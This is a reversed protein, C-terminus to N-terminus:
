TIESINRYFTKIDDSFVYGKCCYILIVQKNINCSDIAKTETINVIDLVEVLITQLIYFKHRLILISM